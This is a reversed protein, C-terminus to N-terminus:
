LEADATWFWTVTTNTVRWTIGWEGVRFITFTSQPIFTQVIKVSPAARMRIPWTMAYARDNSTPSNGTSSFRSEGAVGFFSLDGGLPGPPASELPSPTTDLNYSKSYYRQCLAIETEPERIEFATATAGEEVQVNALSM